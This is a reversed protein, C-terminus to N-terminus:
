PLFRRVTAYRRVRNLESGSVVSAFKSARSPQMETCGVLETYGM